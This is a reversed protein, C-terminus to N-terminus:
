ALCDRRARACRKLRTTASLHVIYVPASPWRPSRSPVPLAEGRRDHHRTLAHYKPANQGRGARTARARSRGGNEAHMCIMRRAQGSACRASITADDLMFVGPYGHVIQFSSWRRACLAGNRSNRAALNRLICHFAYDSRSQRQKKKM